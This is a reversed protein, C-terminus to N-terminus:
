GEHNGWTATVKFIMPMASNSHNAVLAVSFDSTVFAHVLAAFSLGVLLFQVLAATSALRMWDAWGRAAGYLPLTAQVTAVALALILAFHGLEAIM